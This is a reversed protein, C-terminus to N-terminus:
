LNLLWHPRWWGSLQQEDIQDLRDRVDQTTDELIRLCNLRGSARAMAEAGQLASLWSEEVHRFNLEAPQESSVLEIYTYINGTMM